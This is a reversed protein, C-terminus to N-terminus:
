SAGPVVPAISLGSGGMSADPALLSSRAARANASRRSDAAGRGPTAMVPAQPPPPPPAQPPPAVAKPPKPSSLCM